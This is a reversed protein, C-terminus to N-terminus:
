LSRKHKAFFLLIFSNQHIAWPRVPFKKFFFFIGTLFAM